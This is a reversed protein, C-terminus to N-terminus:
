GAAAARVEDALGEPWQPFADYFSMTAERYAETNAEHFSVGHGRLTEMAAEIEGQVARSYAMGGNVFEEKIIQQEESSLQAYTSESMVWGLFPNFHGTLTIEKVVEYWLTSMFSMIPAEAAEVVGQALASYTEAFEVTTSVAGLPDFTRRWTEIPPVRVRVGRLDEPEPYPDRGIIHRGGSMWNLALGRINGSEALRDYWGQMLASDHLRFGQEVDEILFPGGLVSFEPVGFNALTSSDTYSIVPEGQSTQEVTETTTGLQAGPFVQFALRGGTRDTIRACTEEVAAHIPNAAPMVHSLRIQLTRQSLAPAALPILATTAGARAIFTRRTLM